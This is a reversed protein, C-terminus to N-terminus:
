AEQLDTIMKERRDTTSAPFPDSIYGLAQSTFVAVREDPKRSQSEQFTEDLITQDQEHYTAEGTKGHSYEGFFM